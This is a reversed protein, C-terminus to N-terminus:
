CKNAAEVINRATTGPQQDSRLDNKGVRIIFRDPNRKLPTKIYTMLDETSSGSFQKVVVKENNDSLKWGHIDKVM